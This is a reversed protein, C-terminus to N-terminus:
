MSMIVCPGGKNFWDDASTPLLHYCAPLDEGKQCLRIMGPEFRSLRSALQFVLWKAIEGGGPLMAPSCVLIRTNMVSFITYVHLRVVIIVPLFQKIYM